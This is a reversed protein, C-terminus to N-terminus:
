KAAPEVHCKECDAEVSFAFTGDHCQGCRKHMAGAPFATRAAATRVMSFGDRHCSVCDASGADVHVAHRFTVPAPSDPSQPFVVEPPMRFSPLAMAKQFDSAKAPAPKVPATQRRMVGDYTLGIASAFLFAAVAVIGATL